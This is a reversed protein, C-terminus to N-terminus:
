PWFESSEPKAMRTLVLPTFLMARRSSPYLTPASLRSATLVLGFTTTLFKYQLLLSLRPFNHTQQLAASVSSTNLPKHPVPAALHHLRQPLSFLRRHAELHELFTVRSRVDPDSPYSFM